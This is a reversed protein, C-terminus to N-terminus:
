AQLIKTMLGDLSLVLQQLCARADDISMKYPDDIEIRDDGSFLGVLYTKDKAWLYRALLDQYNKRDMVFIADASEVDKGTLVSSHHSRLDINYTAALSVIWPPTSRGAHPHFGASVALPIGSSSERSKSNWYCAAFPSRCINGYCVFLIRSLRKPFYAPQNCRSSHESRLSRLLRYEQHKHFKLIGKQLMRNAFWTLTGWAQLIGPLPDSWWFWDQRITPNLSLAFFELVARIRSPASSAAHLTNARFISQLYSLEGPLVNRCKIGSRYHSPSKTPRGNQHCEILATPFDVGSHLALALSGWLRGNIELFYLKGDSAGRRFEVMAVGEYDIADLITEGLSTLEDDHCSERLSSAGGTYPVEHLRRHAFRLHTTRAFRLIFAGAGSGPVFQQAIIRTNLHELSQLVRKAEDTNAAIFTRGPEYVGEPTQYNDTKIVIPYHLGSLEGHQRGTQTGDSIFITSPCIMGLSLAMRTSNFKSLTYQLATDNPLIPLVESPLEKRVAAVGVVSAETVPLVADFAGRYAQDRLWDKFEFQHYRSDPYYVHRTSYRSWISPTHEIGEPCGAIVTHGARGLSRIAGLGALKHADTVLIRLLRLKERM